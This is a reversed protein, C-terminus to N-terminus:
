QSELLVFKKGETKINALLNETDCSSTERHKVLYSKLAFNKGCKLCMFPRVASHTQLHARLNSKDSFSKSCVPCNYPKEGTHTRM